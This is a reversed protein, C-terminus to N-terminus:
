YGAEAMEQRLQEYVIAPDLVASLIDIQAKRLLDRPTAPYNSEPDYLGNVAALRDVAAVVVAIRGALRQTPGDLPVRRVILASALLANMLEEIFTRRMYRFAANGRDAEMNRISLISRHRLWYEDYADVFREAVIRADRMDGRPQIADIITRSDLTVEHCLAHIISGVDTFYKYFTAPSLGARHAVASSTLAVASGHELLARASDMLRRRTSAGKPGLRAFDDVGDESASYATMLARRARPAKTPWSNKVTREGVTMRENASSNHRSPSGHALRFSQFMESM